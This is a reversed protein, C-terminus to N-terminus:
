AAGVRPVARLAGKRAGSCVCCRLHENEADELGDSVNMILTFGCNKCRSEIPHTPADGEALRRTFQDSPASSRYNMASVARAVLSDYAWKDALSHVVLLINVFKPECHSLGCVDNGAVSGFHSLLISSPQGMATAEHPPAAVIDRKWNGTEIRLARGPVSRNHGVILV